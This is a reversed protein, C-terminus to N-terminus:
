HIFFTFPKFADGDGYHTQLGKNNCIDKIVDKITFTYWGRLKIAILDEDNNSTKVATYMVGGWEEMSRADMIAGGWEEM